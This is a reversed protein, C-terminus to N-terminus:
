FPPEDDGGHSATATTVVDELDDNQAPVPKGTTRDRYDAYQWSDVRITTAFVKKDTEKDIWSESKLRGTVFISVGKTFTKYLDPTARDSVWKQCRMTTVEERPQKDKGKYRHTQMLTFNVFHGGNNVPTIIADAALYGTFSVSNIFYAPM